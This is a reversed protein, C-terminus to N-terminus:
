TPAGLERHRTALGASHQGREWESVSNDDDSSLGLGTGHEGQEGMSYVSLAPLGRCVVKLAPSANYKRAPPWIGSRRLATWAQDSWM